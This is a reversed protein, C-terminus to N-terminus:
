KKLDWVRVNGDRGGAALTTGDAAFRVVSALRTGHFEAVYIGSAIGVPVAFLAGMGVLSLTGAIANGMGGGAEGVPKPLHTFFEWNLAGIGKGVVFFLIMAVPILALVVAAGCLGVMVASVWRRRLDRFTM